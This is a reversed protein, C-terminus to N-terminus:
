KSLFAMTFTNATKKTGNKKTVAMTPLSRLFSPGSTSNSVHRNDRRLIKIMDPRAASVHPGAMRIAPGYHEIALVEL